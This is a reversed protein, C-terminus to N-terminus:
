ARCAEGGNTTLRVRRQPDTPGPLPQDSLPKWEQAASGEFAIDMTTRKPTNGRRWPVCVLFIIGAVSHGLVGNWTRVPLQTSASM